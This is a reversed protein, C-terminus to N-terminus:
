KAEEVLSKWKEGLWAPSLAHQAGQRPMMEDPEGLQKAYHSVLNVYFQRRKKRIIDADGEFVALDAIDSATYFKADDLKHFARLREPNVPRGM